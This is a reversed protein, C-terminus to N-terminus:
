SHKDHLGGYHWDMLIAPGHMHRQALTLLEPIPRPSTQYGTESMALDKWLLDRKRASYM